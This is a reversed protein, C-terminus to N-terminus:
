VEREFLKKRTYPLEQRKWGLEKSLVSKYHLVRECSIKLLAKLSNRELLSAGMTMM